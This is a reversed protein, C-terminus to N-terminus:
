TYISELKEIFKLHLNNQGNKLARQAHELYNDVESPNYAIKQSLDQVMDDNQAKIDSQV